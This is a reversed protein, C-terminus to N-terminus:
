RASSAPWAAAESLEGDDYGLWMAVRNACAELREGAFTIVRGLRWLSLEAFSAGLHAHAGHRVSLALVDEGTSMLKWSFGMAPMLVTDTILNM